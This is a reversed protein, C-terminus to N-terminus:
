RSAARACRPAGDRARDSRHRIRATSPLFHCRGNAPGSGGLGESDAERSSNSPTVAISFSALILNVEPSGKSSSTSTATWLFAAPAKYVDVFTTTEPSTGTVRREHIPRCKPGDNGQGRRWGWLAPM